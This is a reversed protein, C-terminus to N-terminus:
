LRVDLTNIYQLVNETANLFEDFVGPYRRRPCEEIIHRVTQRQAGCDCEPTLAKGWRHLSDACRGTGTRIRNLATWTNRPLEFGPPKQDICAMQHSEQPSDSEWQRRWANTLDFHEQHLSTARLLPPYRSRLRKMEIDLKDHHIPLQHNAEIKRYERLLSHSRRLKPPPIHSLIPLWYNPTPRITGSIMRMTQNLQTDIIKTHKSNLWVPSAYEAASYVLGLASSRLVSASSGWTTGCLKQIINNRTKLKEATRQLHEKFSLTRDLTVGLYKPTSNHTLLRNEFHVSLKKNAQANNLHFCCVETKTANPRLRWKRFYEGMVALDDTLITETVNMNNHRAAIAWDDAYGFKQSTTRPLDAIYLNFLLPALVSGQPLGNSLKMQVSRLNGMTVHFPRDTLMSDILKTVKQCPIARILKCILGQRWVTDYAASLDIFAVSTKQKRQFGAEIHTTLSLIQDTCSRNPRFGAQEIPIVGLITNSIRNHILRELLKYVCSLLAIPRYNQPQDNAKGPKLIAIISAKKLFHPIEGSKLIDTYFDALWKRAYKGCHLLFEPHIKDSGPAKGSKIESIASTIEEPTFEDSYESTPPCASKLIKLDQKVKTTHDRDRPARSNAVIHSAVRNPVIPVKDRTSHRSSGLKRLLSWAKRSSKSFDLKEVTEMWKQRRAADLSHLLEDAIERDQSENYEQYLKECKEDWGPVYDRRYGRPITKKATSIVAGVFRM